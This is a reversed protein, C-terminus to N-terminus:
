TEPPPWQETIPAGTAGNPLIPTYTMKISSFSISFEEIPRDGTTTGSQSFSTFTVDKFEWVLFEIQRGGHQRVTLIVEDYPTGQAVAIFILPSAKNTVMTFNFDSMTLTGAAEGEPVAQMAEMWDFSLINIENPHVRDTSEGPIGNLGGMVKMFIDPDGGACKVNQTLVLSNLVLVTALATVVILFAKKYM